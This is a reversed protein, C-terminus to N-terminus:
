LLAIGLLTSRSIKKLWCMTRAPSSLIICGQYSDRITNRAIRSGAASKSYHFLIPQESIRSFYVGMGNFVFNDDVETHIWFETSVLTEAGEIVQEADPTHYVTLHGGASFDDDNALGDFVNNRSLLAVEVPFDSNQKAPPRAIAEDLELVVLRHHSYRFRRGVERQSYRICGFRNVPGEMRVFKFSINDVGYTSTTSGVSWKLTFASM